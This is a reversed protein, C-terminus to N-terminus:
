QAAPTIPAEAVLDAITTSYLVDNMRAVADRWRARINCGALIGCREDGKAYHSCHMEEMGGELIEIIEGMSITQPDKALIYGGHPGRISRVLGATRLNILLQRLYDEPIKQHTAIAHIQVPKKPDAQAALYVMARLGYDGRSGVKM